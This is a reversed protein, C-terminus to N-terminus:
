PTIKFFFEEDTEKFGQSIFDTLVFSSKEKPKFKKNNEFFRCQEHFAGFVGAKKLELAYQFNSGCMIRFSHIEKPLKDLEVEFGNSIYCSRIFKKDFLFVIMDANSLNKIKLSAAHITDYRQGGFYVAYPADGTQVRPKEKVEEIANKPEPYVDVVIEPKKTWVNLIITILLVALPTAILVNKFENFIKPPAEEQKESPSYFPKKYLTEYYNKRKLEEEASFKNKKPRASKKQKTESNLFYRLKYDYRSKAAPNSLIEYAKAIDRFKDQGNPNIDPHYLKALKRYARKVTETDSFDPLQLIHYLNQM